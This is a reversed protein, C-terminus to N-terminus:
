TTRPRGALDSCLRVVRTPALIEANSVVVHPCNEFRAPLDIFAAAMELGGDRQALRENPSYILAPAGPVM